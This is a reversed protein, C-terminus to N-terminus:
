FLRGYHMIEQKIVDGTIPNIILCEMEGDMFGTDSSEKIINNIEWRFDNTQPDTSLYYETRIGKQVLHQEAIQVVQNKRIFNCEKNQLIFEPIELTYININLNKDIIVFLNSELEEIEPYEIKYILHANSFRSNIKEKKLFHFEKITGFVTYYNVTSASDLHYFRTYSNGITANLVSDGLSILLNRDIKQSFGNLSVILLLLSAIYKM